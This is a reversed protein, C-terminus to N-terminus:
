VIKKCRVGLNKGTKNFPTGVGQRGGECKEMKPGGKKPNPGMQDSIYHSAQFKSQPPKLIRCNSIKPLRDGLTYGEPSLPRFNENKEFSM